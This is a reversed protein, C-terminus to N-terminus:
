SVTQRPHFGCGSVNDNEACPESPESKALCKARRFGANGENVALVVVKKLREKVLYGCGAKRSRFNCLRNARDEMIRWIDRHQEVLHQFDIEGRFRDVQLVIGQMVVVQNERKASYGAIEAM